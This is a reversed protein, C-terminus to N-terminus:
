PMRSVTETADPSVWLCDKEEKVLNRFSLVKLAKTVAERSSGTRAALERHTLKRVRSFGDKRKEGEKEALQQFLRLLRQSVDLFAISEMMEDTMRLRRVLASLLDIAIIPDEKVSHLFKERKLVALLSDEAATITASRPRGDLLSMEGFFDGKQFTALILEQGEENILSAKASGEIVIYLDASHDSQHFVVDGKGVRFLSFDKILNAMQRESLTALFTLRKFFGELLRGDSIEAQQKM